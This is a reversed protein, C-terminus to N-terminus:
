RRTERRLREHLIAITSNSAAIHADMLENWTVWTSEVHESEDFHRAKQTFRGLRVIMIHALEDTMGESSYCDDVREIRVEGPGDVVVGTEEALERLAAHQVDEGPDILGAPLGPVFGHSGIRYERELLYRDRAVDHVLMVVCPAHRILQRSIREFGGSTTPLDIWVDEIDFIPGSYVTESSVIRPSATMDVGDSSASLREDVTADNGEM